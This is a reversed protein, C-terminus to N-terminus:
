DVNTISEASVVRIYATADDFDYHVPVNLHHSLLILELLGTADTRKCSLKAMNIPKSCIRKFRASSYYGSTQEYQPLNFHQKTWFM